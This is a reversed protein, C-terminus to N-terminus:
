KPLDSPDELPHVSEDPLPSPHPNFVRDWAEKYKDTSVWKKNTRAKDSDM